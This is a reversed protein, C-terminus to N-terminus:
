IWFCQDFDTLQEGDLKANAIMTTIIVVSLIVIVVLTIYFRQTNGGLFDFDFLNWFFSLVESRIFGMVSMGLLRLM